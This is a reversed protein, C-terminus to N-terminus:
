PRIIRQGADDIDRWPDPEAFQALAPGIARCDGFMDALTLAARLEFFAAGQARALELARAVHERPSLAHPGPAGCVAALRHVEAAVYADDHTEAAVLAEEIATRADDVQGGAILSEALMARFQPMAVEGMISRSLAMGEALEDRGGHADGDHARAWGRVCQNWALTQITGGRRAVDIGHGASQICTPWDGKYGHLWAHLLWAFALSELNGVQAGLTVADDALASAERLRGTIWANRSSEALSAVVPDFINVFRQSPPLERGIELVYRAHVDADGFHGLHHCAIQAQLHANVVLARYGLTEGLAILQRAANRSETCEGRVLRVFCTMGLARAMGAPDQLGTALATARDALAAATPHGYGRWSSLPVLQAFTLALEIRAHDAAPLQTANALCRVGRLALEHADKFALRATAHQSAIAFQEAAAGYSRALELLLAVRGAGAAEDTSTHQLVDALRRAVHARRSPPLSELLSTQYLAHRFRYGSGSPEGTTAKLPVVLGHENDLATLLDEVALTDKELALGITRADFEYGQLAATELVEHEDSRLVRLSRQILARLTGPMPATPTNVATDDATTGLLYTVLASMFLPNGESSTYVRDSLHDTGSVAAAMAVYRAVDARTLPPLTVEHLHGKALLEARVHGFPVHSAALARDRYTAVLLVRMSAVRRALHAVVDATAADAWHVDDLFHVVPRDRSLGAFVETHERLLREPTDASPTGARLVHAAWTPALKVIIDAAHPVTALEGLIELIPLQPETTGFVESSRGM